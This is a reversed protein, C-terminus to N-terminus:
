DSQEYDQKFKNLLWDLDYIQKSFMKEKRWRNVMARTKEQEDRPLSYGRSENKHWHAYWTNKNVKISGGSLWAKLGVEQMEMWFTGYTEEDMLELFEFYSKKMFWCSGQSTMLDDVQKDSKKKQPIGQLNEDLIMYDIPYKNDTREEIAWKEPDLPYRRPVVITNDNCSRKLEEDWGEAFMCHADCKMVFEGRALSVGSNIANRMGRAETFHIYNIREDEPYDLPWYGDLIAIIEVKGKSKKLIDEITKGLYKENRSPIVVSVMDKVM